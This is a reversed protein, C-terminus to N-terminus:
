CLNTLVWRGNKLMYLRFFIRIVIALLFDSVLDYLGSHSIQHFSYPSDM